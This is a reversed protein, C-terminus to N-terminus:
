GATYIVDGAVFTAAVCDASLADLGVAIPCKLLCLDAAQGVAIKRPQIKSDKLYLPMAVAPSVREADNVPLGSPSRREVAARMAIWPDLPGYPADSSAATPIDADILSACRYLDPQENASVDRLYRDGRAAIFGPQTVVSLGLARIMPIASEPILSGHEIRDGARAGSEAFAALTLALETATVCHVAVNRNQARAAAILEEYDGLSPLSDEDLLIKVPGVSFDSRSSSKLPGKSMLTLRQPIDGKRHANGLILAEDFGTTVSTDVLETIGYRALEKGLPALPPLEADFQERLWIDERFIRGTPIGKADCEAGQPFTDSKILALARSNLLWLRGSQDQLRLPHRPAWLDLQARDLSEALRSACGVARIWQGAPGARTAECIAEAVGGLSQFKDLQLSAARAATAMIHIHNDTLGPILAGSRGDFETAHSRLREGIRAIKGDLIELDLGARGDIEVNRLILSQM